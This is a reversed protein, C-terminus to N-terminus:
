GASNEAHEGIGKKSRDPEAYGYFTEIFNALNGLNMAMFRIPNNMAAM